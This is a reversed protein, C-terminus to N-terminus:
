SCRTDSYYMVGTQSVVKNKSLLEKVTVFKYGKAQLLDIIQLAADVSETVTDHMLIIDGNKVQKMVAAIDKNVNRLKWDWPDVSWKVLPVTFLEKQEQDIKGFPPRVWYDDDGLVKRLEDDTETIEELVASSSMGQLKSHDWTHNGVQHGEAKMRLILDANSAIQKGVLFFTAKAGRDRLGDLLRTTTDERPGDDFTLAVYKETVPIEVQADTLAATEPALVGGLFIAAVLLFIIRQFRM